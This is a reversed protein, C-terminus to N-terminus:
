DCWDFFGISKLDAELATKQAPTLPAFPARPPGVKVGKLELIHRSIALPTGGYKADHMM